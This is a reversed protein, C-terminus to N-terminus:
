NQRPYVETGAGKYKDPCNYIKKATMVMNRAEDLAMTTQMTECRGHKESYFYMGGGAAAKGLITNGALTFTIGSYGGPKGFVYEPTIPIAGGSEITFLRFGLCETQDIDLFNKIRRVKDEVSSPLLYAGTLNVCATEAQAFANLGALLLVGLVLKKM